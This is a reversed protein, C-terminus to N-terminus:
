EVGLQQLLWPRLTAEIMAHTESTPHGDCEIVIESPQKEKYAREIVPLLSLFPLQKEKTWSSILEDLHYAHSFYASNPQIAHISLNVVLVQINHERFLNVAYDLYPQSMNWQQDVFSTPVKNPSERFLAMQEQNIITWNAKNQIIIQEVPTSYLKQWEKKIVAFFRSRFLVDIMMSQKVLRETDEIIPLGFYEVERIRDEFIDNEYTVILVADPQLALYRDVNAAFYIPSAGQVGVNVVEWGFSEYDKGLLYSFTENFEVGYGETISDGIILLRKMDKSKQYPIESGRFGLTNIEYKVQYCTRAQIYTSGPIHSHIYPRMTIIYPNPQSPDIVSIPPPNPFDQSPALLRAMVEALILFIILPILIVLIYFSVTRNETFSHNAKKSM